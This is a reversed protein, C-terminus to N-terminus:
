GALATDRNREYQRRDYMIRAPNSSVVTYASVSKTVVSGAGVMAYEGITVGPLIVAGAGISAGRKILTRKWEDKSSPPYLDNTFTTRPGIFVDEEITVGPCLFSFAGIKTREGIVVWDGIEVFAGIEATEAINPNGWINIYPGKQIV